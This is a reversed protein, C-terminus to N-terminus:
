SANNYIHWAKLAAMHSQVTDGAVSGVHSAAFACLLHENAPLHNCSPVHEKDCFSHFDKIVGHYKKLTSDAWAHNLSFRFKSEIDASFFHAQERPPLVSLIQLLTNLILNLNDQMSPLSLIGSAACIGFCHHNYEM